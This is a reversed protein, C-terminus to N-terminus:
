RGGDALDQGQRGPDRAAVHDAFKRAVDDADAGLGLALGHRQGFQVLMRPLRSRALAGQREFVVHIGPIQGHAGRVQVLIVAEEVAGAHEQAYQPLFGLRVLHVDHLRLIRGALGPAHGGGQRFQLRLAITEAAVLRGVVILQDVVRHFHAVERQGGELRMAHRVIDDDRALHRVQVQITQAAVQFGDAFRLDGEELRLRFFGRHVAIHEHGHGDAVTVAAQFM